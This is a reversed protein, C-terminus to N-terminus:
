KNPTKRFAGEIIATEEILDRSRCVTSAPNNFGANLPQEGSSGKTGSGFSVCPNM